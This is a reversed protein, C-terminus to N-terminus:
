GDADFDFDYANRLGGAMLHWERGDKDTRLWQAGPALAGGARTTEDPSLSVVDEAYNRYPSLPALGAPPKTVNGNLIHIAGDPGLRLAHYGHEGGGKFEKLLELEDATFRDDRNRDTLRYLGNGQPGRANAYFSGHAFLMGMAFRVPAEIPEVRAIRGDTGLTMRLLPHRDGEPSVHLRGHEDFVACVWSGEDPTASRLLEVRFGETIRISEAPTATARSLVNGWPADGHQAVVSARQWGQLPAGARDWGEVPASRVWWNSTSLVERTEAGGLNLHLLLAAPGTSNQAIVGLINTGQILNMSVEARVPQDPGPCTAVRKGNLFVEASDDAVVTLRANWLYPPTRFEHRFWAKEPSHGELSPAWIWQPEAAHAAAAFLSTAAM